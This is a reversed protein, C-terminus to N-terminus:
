IEMLIINKEKELRKWNLYEGEFLLNNTNLEYEKEIWNKDIIIYKGNIKKYYEIDVGIINQLYKNHIIINLKRKQNIFSFVEKIIYSSKIYNLNIIQKEKFEAM